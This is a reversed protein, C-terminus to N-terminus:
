EEETEEDLGYSYGTLFGAADAFDFKLVEEGRVDIFDIGKESEYVSYTKSADMASSISLQGIAWKGDQQVVAFQAFIAYVKDEMRENQMHVRFFGLIDAEPDITHDRLVMRKMEFGSYESETGLTSLVTYINRVTQLNLSDFDGCLSVLDESYDATDADMNFATSGFADIVKLAEEQVEDTMEQSYEGTQDIVKGDLLAQGSPEAQSETGASFPEISTGGPTGKGLGCGAAAFAAMFALLTLLAKKRM